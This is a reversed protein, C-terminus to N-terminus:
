AKSNLQKADNLDGATKLCYPIPFLAVTCFPAFGMLQPLEEPNATARLLNDSMNSVSAHIGPSFFQKFSDIWVDEEGQPAFPLIGARRGNM